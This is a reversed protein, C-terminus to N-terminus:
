GNVVRKLAALRRAIPGSATDTGFYEDPTFVDIAAPPVIGVFPASSHSASYFLIFIEPLNFIPFTITIIGGNLM